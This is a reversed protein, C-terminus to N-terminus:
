KITSGHYKGSALRAEQLPKGSEEISVVRGIKIMGKNPVVLPTGIKLVGKLVECGMIIPNKKNFFAIPKLLCPFVAEKRYMKKREEICEDVYKAYQDELRYITKSELIKVKNMKAYLEAEPLCNVDFALITAYEKKKIKDKDDTLLPAMAKMVDQKSIDGIVINSVPIKRSRLFVLLAELSGLTSAAVCVGETKFKIKKRVKEIDEELTEEIAELDTNQDYVFMQTGAMAKELGPASIKFGMSGKLEKHHIYEAKVRLEKLPQPTLLARVTTKIVGDFGSLIINDGEKIVGNVLIADITTGIGDIKKVEM